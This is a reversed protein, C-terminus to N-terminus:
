GPEEDPRRVLFMVLSEAWLLLLGAHIAYVAPTLFCRQWDVVYTPDYDQIDLPRILEFFSPYTRYIWTTVLAALVNVIILWVLMVTVQDKRLRYVFLGLVVMGVVYAALAIFHEPRLPIPLGIERWNWYWLLAALLVLSSGLFLFHWKRLILTKPKEM